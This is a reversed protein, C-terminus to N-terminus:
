IGSKVPGSAQWRFYVLRKGRIEEQVDPVMSFVINRIELIIERLEDPAYRLFLNVTHHPLM